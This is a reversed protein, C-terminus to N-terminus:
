QQMHVNEGLVKSSYCQSLSERYCEKQVTSIIELPYSELLTMEHWHIFGKLAKSM